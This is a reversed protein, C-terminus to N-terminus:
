RAGFGRPVVVDQPIRVVEAIKAIRAYESETLRRFIRLRKLAILPDDDIDGYGPPTEVPRLEHGKAPKVKDRGAAPASM